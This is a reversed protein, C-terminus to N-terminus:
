SAAEWLLKRQELTLIGTPKRGIKLQYRKIARRTQRGIIGDKPGPEFGLQELASQVRRVVLRPDQYSPEAMTASATSVSRTQDVSQPPPPPPQIKSSQSAVQHPGLLTGAILVASAGVGFAM